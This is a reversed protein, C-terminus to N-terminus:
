QVPERDKFDARLLGHGGQDPYFAMPRTATVFLELGTQHGIRVVKDGQKIEVGAAVLDTRRFLLYGDSDDRPGTDQGKIRKQYMWKVQAQLAVTTRKAGVVPEKTDPDYRTEGSNLLELSVPVPHILRPNPM